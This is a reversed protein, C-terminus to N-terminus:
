VSVIEAEVPKALLYSQYKQPVRPFGTVPTKEDGTRLLFSGHVFERPESGENVANCFGVFNDAPILHILYHRAGWPVPILEPSIRQFGDRDNEFTFALQIRDGKQTATGYNRDYLGLCGHWEFLYGSKPAVAFGVNVGLGDGFYYEGAWQHDGLTKLEESIAARRQKATKEAEASRKPDEPEAACAVGTWLLLMVLSLRIRM